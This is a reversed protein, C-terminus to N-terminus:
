HCRAKSLNPIERESERNIIDYIKSNKLNKNTRKKQFIRLSNQTEERM